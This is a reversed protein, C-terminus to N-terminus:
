KIAHNRLEMFGIQNYLEYIRAEVNFGILHPDFGGLHAADRESHGPLKVYHYIADSEMLKCDLLASSFFSVINSGPKLYKSIKKEFTDHSNILHVKDAFHNELELFQPLDRPHPIFHVTKDPFQSAINNILIIYEPQSIFGISLYAGGIIVVPDGPLKKNDGIQFDQKLLNKSKVGYYVEIYDKYKTFMFVNKSKKQRHYKEFLWFTLLGDDVFYNERSIHFLIQFFVHLKRDDGLILICKFIISYLIVRIANKKVIPIYKGQYHEEFKESTDYVYLNAKDNQIVTDLLQIAGLVQTESQTYVIIM